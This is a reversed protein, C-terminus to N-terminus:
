MTNTRQLIPKSTEGNYVKFMKSPREASGNDGLRWRNRTECNKRRCRGESYIERTEEKCTMEKKKVLTKTPIDFPPLDFSSGKPILPRPKISTTEQTNDVKVLQIAPVIRYVAMMMRRNAEINFWRSIVTPWNERKINKEFQHKPIPPPTSSQPPSTDGTKKKQHATDRWYTMWFSSERRLRLGVLIWTVTTRTM